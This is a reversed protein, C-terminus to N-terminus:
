HAPFPQGDQFVLLVVAVVVVIVVRVGSGLVATDRVSCHLSRGTWDGDEGRQRHDGAVREQTSRTRPLRCRGRWCCAAKLTRRLRARTNSLYMRVVGGGGQLKSSSSSNKRMMM